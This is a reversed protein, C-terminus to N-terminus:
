LLPYKGVTYENDDRVARFLQKREEKDTLNLAKCTLTAAVACIYWTPDDTVMINLLGNRLAYWTSSYSKDQTYLEAGEDSKNTCLEWGYEILLDVADGLDKVLVLWDRDTDLVPPDVTFSSGTPFMAISGVGAHLSPWVLATQHATLGLAPQPCM